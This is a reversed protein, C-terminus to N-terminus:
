PCAVRWADLALKKILTSFRLPKTVPCVTNALSAAGYEVHFVAKNAAIFSISYGGCESYAVCEENLAWDFDGVLDGLQDIDNKLGVSLGRAHAETAIFRNYALQDAATLPFGTDNQYGDVNDPEVGDCQKQAALDLRAKMVPQLGASRVDLWSEGAWGDMAKGIAATPFSAIDPRFDEYSGASFYCIVIRGAAHLADITAQPTEFLDLDYMAVDISTDLTGSLQWQWSTEPAPRWIAKTGADPGASGGADPGPQISADIPPSGADPKPTPAADPPESGADLGPSTGSDTAAVSADAGAIVSADVAAAADPSDEVPQDSCAALGLALLLVARRM